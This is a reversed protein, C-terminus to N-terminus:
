TIAFDKCIILHITKEVLMTKKDKEKSLFENLKKELTNYWVNTDTALNKLMIERKIDDNEESIEKLVLNIYNFWLNIFYIHM